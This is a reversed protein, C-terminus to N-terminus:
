KRSIQGPHAGLFMAIMAPILSNFDDKLARDDWQQLIIKYILCKWSLLYAGSAVEVETFIKKIILQTAVIFRGGYITELASTRLEPGEDGTAFPLRKFPWEKHRNNWHTGVWVVTKRLWHAESKRQLLSSKLLYMAFVLRRRLYILM